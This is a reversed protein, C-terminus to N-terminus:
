IGEMEFKLLTIKSKLMDREMEFDDITQTIKTYNDILTKLKSNKDQYEHYLNNKHMVLSIMDHTQNVKNVPLHVYDKM